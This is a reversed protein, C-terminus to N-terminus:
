VDPLWDPYIGDLKPDGPLRRSGRAPSLLTQGVRSVNQGGAVQVLLLLFIFVVHIFM